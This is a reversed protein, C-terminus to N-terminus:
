VSSVSEGIVTRVTDPLTQWFSREILTVVRGPAQPTGRHDESPLYSGPSQTSHALGLVKGLSLHACSRTLHIRLGLRGSAAFM